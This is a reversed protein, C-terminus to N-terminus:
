TIGLFMTSIHCVYSCFTFHYMECEPINSCLFRTKIWTTKRLTKFSFLNRKLLIKVTASIKITSLFLEVTCKPLLFINRRYMQTTFIYKLPVNPYYFYIEATYKPLLFWAFPTKEVTQDKPWRYIHTWLRSFVRRKVTYNWAPQPPDLLEEPKIGDILLIFM